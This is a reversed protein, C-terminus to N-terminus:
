GPASTRRRGNARSQACAGRVGRAPRGARDAAAGRHGCARAAAPQRLAADAVVIVGGLIILGIAVGFVIPSTPLTAVLVFGTAFTGFIAGATGLASLRGVTRGTEALDALQLKIVTPPVASLVAAPAFFALLALLLVAAPGGGLPLAGVLRVIPVIGLSLAGGLILIPGLLM